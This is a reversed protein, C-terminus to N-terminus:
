PCIQSLIVYTMLQTTLVSMTLASYQSRLPNVPLSSEMSNGSTTSKGVILPGRKMRATSQNVGVTKVTHPPTERRRRKKNSRTSHFETFPAEDNTDMDCIVARPNVIQSNNGYTHYQLHWMPLLVQDYSGQM